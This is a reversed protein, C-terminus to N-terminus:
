EIKKITENGKGGGLKGVLSLLIYVNWSRPLEKWKDYSYDLTIPM